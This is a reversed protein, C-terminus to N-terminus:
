SPFCGRGSDGPAVGIARQVRQSSASKLPTKWLCVRIRAEKITDKMRKARMKLTTVNLKKLLTSLGEAHDTL